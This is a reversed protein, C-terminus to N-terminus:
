KRTAWSYVGQHAGSWHLADMLCVHLADLTADTGYAVKATPKSPGGNLRCRVAAVVIEAQGAHASCLSFMFMMGHQLTVTVQQARAIADKWGKSVLRCQGVQGPFPLLRQLVRSLVDADVSGWRSDMTRRRDARAGHAARRLCRPHNLCASQVISRSAAM